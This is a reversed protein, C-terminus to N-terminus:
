MSDILIFRTAESADKAVVCAEGAFEEEVHNVVRPSGDDLEDAGKENEGKNIPAHEDAPEHEEGDDPDRM